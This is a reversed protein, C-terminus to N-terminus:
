KEYKRHEKVNKFKGRIFLRKRYFILFYSGWELFSTDEERGLEGGQPLVGWVQGSLPASARQRPALQGGKQFVEM